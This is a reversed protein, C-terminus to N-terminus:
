VKEWEKIKINWVAAKENWRTALKIYHPIRDISATTTSRNLWKSANRKCQKYSRKCFNVMYDIEDQTM